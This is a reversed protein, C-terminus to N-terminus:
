INNLAEIIKTYHETYIKKRDKSLTEQVFETLLIQYGTKAELLLNKSEPKNIWEFYLLWSYTDLLTIQLKSPDRYNLHKILDSKYKLAEKIDKRHKRLCLFYVINNIYRLQHFADFSFKKGLKVAQRTFTIAEDLDIKNKLDRDEYRMFFFKGMAFYVEAMTREKEQYGEPLEKYNKLYSVAKNCHDIADNWFGWAILVYAFRFNAWFNEKDNKLIDKYIDYARQFNQLKLNIFGLECMIDKLYEPCKENLEKKILEDKLLNEIKIKAEKWKSIGEEINNKDKDEHLKTGNQELKYVEEMTRYFNDPLSYEKKPYFRFDIQPPVSFKKAQVEWHNQISSDIISLLKNAEGLFGGLSKFLNYIETSDKEMIKKYTSHHQIEGWAEELLTRIQLECKFNNFFPINKPDRKKMLVIHLSTYGSSRGELDYKQEEKWYKLDIQQDTSYNITKKIIDYNDSLRELARKQIEKLNRPFFCVIRLGVIDNIFHYLDKESFNQQQLKELRNIDDRTNKIENKIEENKAKGKSVEFLCELKDKEEKLKAPIKKKLSDISKIRSRIQYITGIKEITQLDHLERKLDDRIGEFTELNNIYYEELKTM